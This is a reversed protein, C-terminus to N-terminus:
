LPQGTQGVRNALGLERSRGSERQETGVDGGFGPEDCRQRLTDTPSHQLPQLLEKSPSPSPSPSGSPSPSPSGSPSPSPSPSSTQARGERMGIADAVSASCEMSCSRLACRAVT